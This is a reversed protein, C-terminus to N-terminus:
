TSSKNTAGGHAEVYARVIGKIRADLEPQSARMANIGIMMLKPQMVPALERAKVAVPDLQLERLRVLEARTFETAYIVATQRKINVLNAKMTQMAHDHLATKVQNILEEPVNEGFQKHLSDEMAATSAGMMLETVRMANADFQGADLYRMAEAVTAPDPQPSASVVQVVVTKPATSPAGPSLSTSGLVAAIGAAGVWVSM